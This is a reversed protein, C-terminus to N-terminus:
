QGISLDKAEALIAHAPATVRNTRVRGDCRLATRVDDSMSITEITVRMKRTWSPFKDPGVGPVNVPEVEGALDDVSLGVLKAPTRCLLGHIAGCLKSVSSPVEDAPILTEHELLRLLANREHDRESRVRAAEEDSPIMGVARRIEIDRGIWFGALPPLDHTNATALSRAPYSHAPKFGGQDDREFYLVKSSLIGWHELAPPVYDPVTGLDEGVVIANNRVSELAVIGLLDDAPYRVYAGDRGSMGDPIWFLRFLGMVHDIRLAGGHHFGSRVLEIFYRYATRRLARPDIPPLGWNQGEAAYPDPPAGVSVGHVFLDPFSWADAGAPSTGIALDQYLGIRMGAARARRAADGLQRDTEFQLWRHLDVRRAREVAFRAVTASKSDRFEAPWTRWDFGRGSEEAIAMWTAFRTLEPEEAALYADYARDRENHSGRVRDLFVRHLADFALRKVGMVQEYRVARSARLAAIEVALESSELRARVEPADQLEPIRMVDLYIPNRFVRSVPSYPSIDTGRNVVAHLPNVGVFDAGVSGGWEALTGLDSLDGVGWNTRSRLTYLNAILGFTGHEGLLDDPSVCRRPTVILTQEHVWARADATLTLRIRHYGLPLAAPLSLALSTEGTWSGDSLARAGGEVEVELRWSGPGVPPSPLRVELRELQPDGQPVVRVPAILEADSAARCAALSAGAAADTSADTGLAALLARRTDDSTPCWEGTTSHYGPTIGVREALEILASSGDGLEGTM